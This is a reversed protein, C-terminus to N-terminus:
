QVTPEGYIFSFDDLLLTSTDCGYFYDGWKSSTCVILVHTPKTTLSHYVLPINVNAWETNTNLTKEGYAIVRPDTQWNIATTMEYGDSNQANAAKISETLLACFVQANDNEGKAAAGIGSPQNGRNIAGTTYKMWVNLASPRSDFPQGWNLEAGNTGILKQFTGTFLSAAAFKIVVYKSSLQASTGNYAGDTIGTTVNWQEGMLTSGPNSTSWYNKEGAANPSWANGDLFWNEMGANPVQLQAETTFYVENSNVNVDEHQYNMRYVYEKGPTLETLKYSYTDNEGKVLQAYPVATWTEADKVKYQFSLGEEVFSSPKATVAGNLEAFNSWANANNTRLAVSSKRPIEITYDYSQTEDDVIVTVGGMSGSEALKYNIIFHDRAKVETIDRSMSFTEDDKNTVGLFFNLPAVPFYVTGVTNLGFRQAAVEELASTIVCNADKFHAKFNNDFRVTVKVNAQTLVLNATSLVKPSISVTTSGAYYPAGFASDSGDWRASSGTITYTGPALVINGKFTEDNDFDGTEKIVNGKSDTIKIAITRPNYNDPKSMVARTNTSLLTTLDIKLYGQKQLSDDDLMNSSCSVAFLSLCLVSLIAYIKKMKEIM